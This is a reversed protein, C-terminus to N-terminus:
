VNRNEEFSRQWLTAHKFTQLQVVALRRVRRTAEDSTTSVERASRRFFCDIKVIAKVEQSESVKMLFQGFAGAKNKKSLVVKCDDSFDAEDLTFFDLLIKGGLQLRQQGHEVGELAEILTKLEHVTISPNVELTFTKESVVEIHIMM